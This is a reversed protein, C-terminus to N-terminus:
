SLEDFLGKQASENITELENYKSLDCNCRTDDWFKGELIANDVLKELRKSNTLATQTRTKFYEKQATRMETVLQLFERYTM